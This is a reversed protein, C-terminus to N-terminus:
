PARGPAYFRAAHSNALAHGLSAFTRVHFRKELVSAILERTADDDELVAVVPM